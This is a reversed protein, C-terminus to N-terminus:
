ACDMKESVAADTAEHRECGRGFLRFREKKCMDVVAGVVEMGGREKAARLPPLSIAAKHAVPGSYCDCSSLAAQGMRGNNSAGAGNRGNQSAVKVM